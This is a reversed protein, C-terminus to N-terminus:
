TALNSKIFGTQQVRFTKPQLRLKLAAVLTPAQSFNILRRCRAFEMNNLLQAKKHHGVCGAQVLCGLTVLM